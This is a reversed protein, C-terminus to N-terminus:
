FRRQLTLLCLSFILRDRICMEFGWQAELEEPEQTNYITSDYPQLLRVVRGATSRCVFGAKRELM